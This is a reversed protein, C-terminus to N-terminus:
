DAATGTDGHQCGKAACIAAMAAQLSVNQADWTDGHTAILECFLLLYRTGKHAVSAPKGLLNDFLAAGMSGGRTRLKDINQETLPVDGLCELEVEEQALDDYHPMVETSILLRFLGVDRRPISCLALRDGDGPDVFTECWECLNHLKDCFFHASDVGAM